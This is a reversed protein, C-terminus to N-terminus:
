DGLISSSWLKEQVHYSPHHPCNHPRHHHPRRHRPTTIIPYLMQFHSLFRSPKYKWLFCQNWGRWSSCSERCTQQLKKQRSPRERVNLDEASMVWCQIKCPTPFAVAFLPRIKIKRNIFRWGLPCVSWNALPHPFIIGDRSYGVRVHCVRSYQPEQM